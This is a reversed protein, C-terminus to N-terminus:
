CFRCIIEIFFILTVLKFSLLLSSVGKTKKKNEKKKKEKKLSSFIWERLPYLQGCFGLLSAQLGYARVLPGM